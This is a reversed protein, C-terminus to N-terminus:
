AEVKHDLLWASILLVVIVLLLDIISTGLYLIAENTVGMDVMPEGGFSDFAVHFSEMLHAERLIVGWETLGRYIATEQFQFWLWSGGVSIAVGLLWGLKRVSKAMIYIFTAIMGSQLSAIFIAFFLLWWYSEYQEILFNAVTPDPFSSSSRNLLLYIIVFTTLLSAFLQTMAAVFKATLLQWGSTPINLWFVTTKQKWEQQLSDLMAFFMYFLHVLILPVTLLIIFPSYREMIVLFLVAVMILFAINFIFKTRTLRLEKLYLTLWSM